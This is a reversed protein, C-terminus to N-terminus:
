KCDYAMNGNYATKLLWLLKAPWDLATVRARRENTQRATQRFPQNIKLMKKCFKM